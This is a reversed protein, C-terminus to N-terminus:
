CHLVKRWVNDSMFRSGDPNIFEGGKIRVNVGIAQLRERTTATVWGCSGRWLKGTKNNRAAIWNDHLSMVTYNGYNFVRTNSQAFRTGNAFAKAAAASIAHM